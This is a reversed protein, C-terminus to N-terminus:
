GYHLWKCNPRIQRLAVTQLVTALPQLNEDRLNVGQRRWSDAFFRECSTTPFRKGICANTLRGQGRCARWKCRGQM